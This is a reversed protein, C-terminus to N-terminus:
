RCSPKNYKNKSLNLQDFKTCNLRPRTRDPLSPTQAGLGRKDVDSNKLVRSGSNDANTRSKLEKIKTEQLGIL